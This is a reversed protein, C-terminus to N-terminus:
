YPTLPVRKFVSPVALVNTKEFSPSKKTDEEGHAADLPKPEVGMLDALKKITSEGGPPM